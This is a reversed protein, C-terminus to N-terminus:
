INRDNWRGSCRRRAPRPCWVLRFKLGAGLVTIKDNLEGIEEQLKNYCKSCYHEDGDRIKDKCIDCNGDLDFEIAM